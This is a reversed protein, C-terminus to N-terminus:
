DWLNVTGDNSGSAIVKGDPSLAVAYLTGAHQFTHMDAYCLRWLHYWEFGRMDERGPKSVSADLLEQMRKINAGEWDDQAQNMAAAYLLRHNARDREAVKAQQEEAEKRQQNAEALAAEMKQANSEALSLNKSARDREQDAIKRQEAERQANKEALGQQKQTEALAVEARSRQERAEDLAAEARSRQNEAEIRQANAETQAARAAQASRVAAGVLAAMVILIIAAIATARMLGRRYAERQRRVEADPMNAKVWQRDFARKYIQNRVRLLGDDARVVGSLRLVSVLPNAEDDRARKGRLTQWYLTLLGALDVESRLMRERVFLLNDDRERARSSLFMEECARDVDEAGSANANEAVAQCLRQTLYPHGGTWYLVRGLLVAGMREDGGLGRALPMAERDTFDHLEIRRGINFPTTRTDRILDSPTAVGLLCFALRQLDESETRRNYFERIGAFFEDTSFPLSRVADIEDVFIVVNATYRPLVVKEIAHKWRQLPGLDLHSHWFDFLEDELELQQAMQTMLGGYWQEATVNQGVATLDLVAVGAGEERLRAAVRVMLSSKGMQRATLVYCFEGQSLGEYLQSDAQRVVYSPADRRLTGGTVYFSQQSTTRSATM